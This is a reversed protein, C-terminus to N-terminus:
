RPVRYERAWNGTYQSVVQAWTTDWYVPFQALSYLTGLYRLYFRSGGELVNMGTYQTEPDPRCTAPDSCDGRYYDMYVM